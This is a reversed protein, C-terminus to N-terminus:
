YQNEMYGVVDGDYDEAVECVKEKLDNIMSKEAPNNYKTLNEKNSNILSTFYNTLDEGGMEIKGVAHNLVFGEYIPVCSSTQYGLDM